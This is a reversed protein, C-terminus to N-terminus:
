NKPMRDYAAQEIELLRDIGIKEVEAVYSDWDADVDLEGTIFKGKMQQLYVSIDTYLATREDAEEATYSLFPFSVVEKDCQNRIALDKQANVAYKLNMNSLVSELEEDSAAEVYAAGAYLSYLSFSDAISIESNRWELMSEYKEADFYNDTNVTVVGLEDTVEDYNEGAKGGYQFYNMGEASFQYDILRCIAEPYETTASVYTLMDTSASPYLVYTTEDVLDSKMGVLVEYDAVYSADPAGIVTAFGSWSGGFVATKDAIQAHLDEASIIFADENVLDEEYLKNMYKLYEKYNDSTDLLYVNGDKDADLMYYNYISNVGFASKFMWETRQGSGQDFSLILPIRDPDTEKINKLVNYFGETTTLDEMSFGYKEMDEKAVHVMYMANVMKNARFSSLGYIAGTEDMVGAAYDPHEELMKSLNPMIDLYQSIDLLYGEKGAEVCAAKNWASGVILDPLSDEALMLSLQTSWADDPVPVPDLKIGMDREIASVMKTKSWDPTAGQKGGIKITVTENCIPFGTENYYSKEEVAPTETEATEASPEAPEETKAGCGALTGVALVCALLTALMRKKM